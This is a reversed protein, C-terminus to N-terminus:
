EKGSYAVAGAIIIAISLAVIDNSVVEKFTAIIMMFTTVGVVGKFIAMKRVEMQKGSALFRM